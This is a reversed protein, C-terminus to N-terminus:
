NKFNFVIGLKHLIDRALILNYNLLKDTLHYKAYIKAFHNLEPLKLIIETIFITNFTGAMTSRKNKKNKLIKHQKYLVDKCIILASASSDLLIKITCVSPNQNDDSDRPSIRSNISIKGRLKPPLIVGFTIPSLDTANISQESNLILKNEPQSVLRSRISMHGLSTNIFFDLYNKIPKGIKTKSDSNLCAVFLKDM